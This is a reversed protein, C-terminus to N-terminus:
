LFVNGLYGVDIIGMLIAANYIASMSVSIIESM